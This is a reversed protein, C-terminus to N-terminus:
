SGRSSRPYLWGELMQTLWPMVPYTLLASVFTVSVLLGLRPPLGGLLPGLLQDALLILPYVALVGLIVKKYYSPQAPKTAGHNPLTFWLEMGQPLPQHLQSRGVVLDKSRDIWDRYIPSNLWARFHVYNDFKVIVVYEPHDDERPRIVEVELFGEVQSTVQNIGHAWDEYDAIRGPAVIESIVLTIPTASASGSPPPSPQM